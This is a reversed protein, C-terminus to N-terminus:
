SRVSRFLLNKLGKGNIAIDGIPNKNEYITKIINLHNGKSGLKNLTKMLFPMPNKKPPPTKKRKYYKHSDYLKKDKKETLIM